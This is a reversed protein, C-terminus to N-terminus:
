KLGLPNNYVLVKQQTSPMKHFFPVRFHKRSVDQCREDILSKWLNEEDLGETVGDAELLWIDVVPLNLLLKKRITVPLLCLTVPPFESLHRIIYYFCCGELTQFKLGQVRNTSRAAALILDLDM